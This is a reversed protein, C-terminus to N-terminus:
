LSIVGIGDQISIKTGFPESLKQLWELVENAIDPHALIPRGRQPIPLGYGMDIPYLRVERLAGEEYNNVAVVSRWFVPDSPFGRRDNDSRAVLYDGPTQDYGLNFRRYGEDPAWPVTENQFIFNGLSYFIPKGNYIEIGRLFHPGHGVFLDCGQDITWRAFEVLHDPPATLSGGHREGTSGSEHSHAGYVVWDAQKKAGRIWKGIGDLDEQDVFTRRSYEEGLLFKGGLFQVETNDDPASSVGSFGFQRGSEQMATYGLEQNAKHLADFIEREVTHTVSYRLANIGPKGIFDPRGLGARSQESYSTSASLLAVRGRPSDVYTPARAEDLNKGGGAQPLDFERCHELTTLFGGESFDYAHNNATTVADIGMWKLQQLNRPDSRTPTGGSYEWSYEYDHFLMELNVIACDTARILNVLQLFRDEKHPNMKRTIMADGGVAISIDRRQADYLMRIEKKTPTAEM